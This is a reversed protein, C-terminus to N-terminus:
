DDDSEVGLEEMGTAFEDDAAFEDDEIEEEFDDDFDDDFDDEDFDDDDNDDFDDPDDVSLIPELAITFPESPGFKLPDVILSRTLTEVFM